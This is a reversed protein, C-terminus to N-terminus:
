SNGECDVLGVVSQVMSDFALPRSSIAEIQEEYGAALSTLTNDSYVAIFVLFNGIDFTYKAEYSNGVFNTMLTPGDILEPSSGSNDYVSMGISLSPSNGSTVFSQAIGAPVLM